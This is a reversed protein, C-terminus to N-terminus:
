DIVEVPPLTIPPAPTITPPAPVETPPALAENPPASAETPTAPIDTPPAQKTPSFTCDSTSLLGSMRQVGSELEKIWNDLLVEDDENLISDEETLTPVPNEINIVGVEEEEEEEEEYNIDDWVGLNDASSNSSITLSSYSSANTAMLSIPAPAQPEEELVNLIDIIMDEANFVPNRPPPLPPPPPPPPPPPLTSNPLRPVDYEVEDKRSGRSSNTAISSSLTSSVSILSHPRSGILNIICM